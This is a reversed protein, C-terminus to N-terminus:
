GYQPEEGPSGSGVILFPHREGPFGFAATLILARKKALLAWGDLIPARRKSLWALNDLFFAKRSALWVVLTHPGKELGVTGLWGLYLTRKGDRRPLFIWGAM